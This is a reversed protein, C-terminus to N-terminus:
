LPIEMTYELPIKMIEREEVERDILVYFFRM